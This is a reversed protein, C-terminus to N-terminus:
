SRPRGTEGIIGRTICVILAALAFGAIVDTPYHVGLYIRSLGIAGILALSAALVATRQWALPLAAAILAGVVGYFCGSYLAHGSAFSYSAPLDGFFPEPRARAVAYKIANNVIAAAGMVAVLRLADNRRNMFILLVTAVATLSYVVAVSGLRTIFMFADTLGPSAWSSVTARVAADLGDSAGFLVAAAVVVFLLSSTALCALSWGSAKQDDM